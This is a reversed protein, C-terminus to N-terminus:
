TTHTHKKKKPKYGMSWNYIKTALCIPTAIKPKRKRKDKIRYMYFDRITQLLGIYVHSQTIIFSTIIEQMFRWGTFVIDQAARKM